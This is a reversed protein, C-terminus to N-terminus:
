AHYYRFTKLDFFSLLVLPSKIALREMKSRTKLQLDLIRSIQNMVLRNCGQSRGNHIRGGTAIRGKKITVTSLTKNLLSHVPIHVFSDLCQRTCIKFIYMKQKFSARVRGAFCYKKHRCAPLRTPWPPKGGQGRGSGSMGM